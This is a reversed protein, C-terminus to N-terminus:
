FCCVRANLSRMVASAQDVLRLDDSHIGVLADIREGGILAVASISTETFGSAALVRVCESAFQLSSFRGVANYDRLGCWRLVVASCEEHPNRGDGTQGDTAASCAVELNSFGALAASRAYPFGLSSFCLRDAEKIADSHVSQAAIEHSQTITALGAM